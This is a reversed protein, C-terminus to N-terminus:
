GRIAIPVLEPDPKRFRLARFYPEEAAVSVFLAKPLSKTVEAISKRDMKREIEEVLWALEFKHQGATRWSKLIACYTGM